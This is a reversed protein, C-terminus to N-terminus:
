LVRLIEEPINIQVPTASCGLRNDHAIIRIGGLRNVQGGHGDELGGGFVLEGFDGCRENGQECRMRLLRMVSEPYLIERLLKHLIHRTRVDFFDGTSEGGDAVLFHTLLLVGVFTCLLRFSGLCFGSQIGVAVESGLGVCRKIISVIQTIIIEHSSSAGAKQM